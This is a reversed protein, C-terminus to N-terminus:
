EGTEKSEALAAYQTRLSNAIAHDIAEVGGAVSARGGAEFATNAMGMLAKREKTTLLAQLEATEQDCSESHRGRNTSERCRCTFWRADCSHPLATVKTDCDWCHGDVLLEENSEPQSSSIPHRSDGCSPLTKRGCEPCVLNEVSM